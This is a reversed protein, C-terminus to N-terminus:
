FKEILGYDGDARKYVINLKGSERNNFLLFNRGDDEM